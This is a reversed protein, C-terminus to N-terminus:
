CNLTVAKIHPSHRLLSSAFFGACTDRVSCGSCEDFYINKWDSISKRAFPWIENPLLCLPLNYISVNLGAEVLTNVAIGLERQYEIPDIWLADINSKAYGMLELGMLAVHDVFPLNRAVFKAFEPLRRFTQQHIVFRLEIKQRVRGLNLIGKVTQGFAGKAQVVFDHAHDVDAYLPIGIMFDPHLIAAVRKAYELYSFMRGNSLMHLSTTPLHQKTSAILDLLSSFLLTPEGGTIGLEVTDQSMLPLAKLWEKVLFDDNETKPPQSCMLCRSNCRETVLMSNHPSAKRYMVWISGNTSIRVIDGEGLYNLEEPLVPLCNETTGRRALTLGSHNLVESEDRVLLLETATDVSSWASERIRFVSPEALQLGAIRSTLKM